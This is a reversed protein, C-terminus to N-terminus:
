NECNGVNLLFELRFKRFIQFKLVLQNRLQFSSFVNCSGPQSPLLAPEPRGLDSNLGTNCAHPPGARGRSFIAIDFLM